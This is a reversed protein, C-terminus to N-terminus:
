HEVIVLAKVIAFFYHLHYYLYNSVNFEKYYGM